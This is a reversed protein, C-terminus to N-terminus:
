RYPKNVDQRLLKYLTAALPVGFLMGLVGFLGGGITIAALVWMGPLGISSGVVKPYILNGELQQLVIIFIIFLLAKIPEVTAIMLIGFICGIYAGVMPILATVGIVAGVMPAYPFKFIMMGVTCLCGLIVAETCQGVIFSSFCEDAVNLVNTIGKKYKIFYRRGVKNTQRKLTEKNFLIYISFILGIGINVIVSFISGVISFTSNVIGTIGNSTFGLIKQFLDDWNIYLKEIYSEFQPVKDSYQLLWYQFKDFAPPIAKAFITFASVIEPIVIYFLLFLILIISFISLITCVARKTKLIFKNKTNPFYIKEIRTLLLNLIYAFIAGLILPMSIQFIKLVMTSAFKINIIILVLIAIFITYKIIKKDNLEFKGM